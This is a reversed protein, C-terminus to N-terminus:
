VRLYLLVRGPEEYPGLNHTVDGLDQILLLDYVATTVEGSLMIYKFLISPTALTEGCGFEDGHDMRVLQHYIVGVDLPIAVAECIPGAM